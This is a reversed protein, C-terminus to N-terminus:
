TADPAPRAAGTERERNLWRRAAELVPDRGALLDARTRRITEDPTVGQGEITKGRPTQLDAIAYQFLDGTPLAKFNSPLAAGASTEGFVRARGAEQLGAAMIESTSASGADILLAVPGLFARAQPTVTFGMHGERMHMTALVYTRSSLWGSIGSAMITIGGPNGRLDIVLGGDPPVNELASRIAKMVQRTFVNFRLYVLGDPGARVTCEVPVSPYDGMPDSWEGEHAAVTVSVARETGDNGRVRLGVKSGVAARMRSDVMQTLYYGGRAPPLGIQELYSQLPKLEVRDVALVVDGPQLDPSGAQDSSRSTLVTVEGEVLALEVGATGIRVREEPTFVSMERPLISFHSRKLEGLMATLLHRLAAKDPVGPLLAQYKERVAAWDVGGFAPDHYSTNVTEWVMAFTQDRVGPWAEAPSETDPPEVALALPIQSLFVAVMLGCRWLSSVRQM